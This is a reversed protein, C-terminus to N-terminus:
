KLEAKGGLKKQAGFYWAIKKEIALEAPDAPRRKIRIELYYTNEQKEPEPNDNQHFDWEFVGTDWDYVTSGWQVKSQNQQIPLRFTKLLLEKLEKWQEVTVKEYKVVENVFKEKM